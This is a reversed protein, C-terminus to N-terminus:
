HHEVIRFSLVLHESVPSYICISDHYGMADCGREGMYMGVIRYDSCLERRRNRQTYHVAKFAGEMMALRSMATYLSDYERPKNNDDRVYEDAAHRAELVANYRKYKPNVIEDITYYM